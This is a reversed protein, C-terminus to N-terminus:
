ITISSHDEPFKLIKNVRALKEKALENEIDNNVAWELMTKAAKYEETEFFVNGLGLCAMASDPKSELVSQFYNQADEYKQLSLSINGLLLEIDNKYFILDNTTNSIIDKHLSKLLEAAKEINGNNIELTANDFKEILGNKSNDKLIQLVAIRDLPEINKIVNKIQDSEIENLKRHLLAKMLYKKGLSFSKLYFFKLALFLYSSFMAENRDELWKNEPFLSEISNNKLLNEIIRIEFTFDTKESFEGTINDNHIRYLYLHKPVLKLNYKKKQIVRVWFEYDQARSYQENYKGIELYITKRVACGGDTIPSGKILFALAENPKNYWDEGEISTVKDSNDRFMKIKSYLIDANPFEKLYISYYQLASPLLMDDDALWVVFEGTAEDIGRNRTEPAGSHEKKIYRIKSSNFSKVVQETNDESGDDVIVIEYNQYIQNLASKISKSLFTARNYTFICISFKPKM